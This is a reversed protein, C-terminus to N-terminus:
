NLFPPRLRLPLFPLQIPRVSLLLLPSLLPLLLLRPRLRSLLPLPPATHPPPPPPPMSPRLCLPLLRVLLGGSPILALLLPQIRSATCRPRNRDRGTALPPSSRRRYYKRHNTHPLHNHTPLIYSCFVLHVVLGQKTTRQSANIHGRSCPMENALRGISMHMLPVMVLRGKVLGEDQHVPPVVM